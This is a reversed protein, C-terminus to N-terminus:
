PKLLYKEQKHIEEPLAPSLSKVASRPPEDVETLKDIPASRALGSARTNGYRNGGPTIIEKAEKLSVPSPEYFVGRFEEDLQRVYIFYTKGAIFKYERSRFVDVPLRKDTYLSRSHVKLLGKSPKLYLLTYNGEQQKLLTSEQYTIRVEENAPGKTKLAVPRIFYVAALQSKQDATLEGSMLQPHQTNVTACAVLSLAICVAVLNKIQQSMTNM